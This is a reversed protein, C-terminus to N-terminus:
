GRATAFVEAPFAGAALLQKSLPKALAVLRESRESGLHHWPAVAAADTAAEVRTRLAGGESTLAGEADLVGDHRLREVCAHWEEESWGRTAKAADERFGEGTATHTVLADLGGLGADVLAAIHGDGRHERLLTVAHWLVLHPEQPWDLDAHAAYLPRGAPTCGSSAERALDAAEALAPSALTDAGLMRRLADDVAAYRATTIEAPSALSWARPIVKRVREPNFNFFTAAVVGPGVPGMPASRGAFYGMMGPRLGAATFREEAEPAFYVFSHLANLVQHCRRSLAVAEDHRM